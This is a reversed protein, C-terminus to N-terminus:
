SILVSVGNVEVDGDARILIYKAGDIVRTKILDSHEPSVKITVEPTRVEFQKEDIIAAPSIEAKLGFNTDFKEDFAAAKEDSVGSSRLIERIKGKSLALPEEKDKKHEEILECLSSHVAQVVRLSRDDSITEEIITTFIEKQEAAPMPVKSGFVADIFDNHSEAINRTHFLASYINSARDDFAPFMFGFEPASVVFDAGIRQFKNENVHYGLAPKSQKVPCVCSLIYTFVSSSDTDKEGDKTYAPVDYKDCAILILCAGEIDLSGIVKQCFEYVAVDDGLETDRLKMLLKHKEDELVQQTSFGIDILNKGVTGSLTKKLIALMEGTESESMMGLSQNFGAIIERKENVYCGRIHTINNKEVKYRRRIEAIDKENM